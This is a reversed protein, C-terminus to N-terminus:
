QAKRVYLKLSDRSFPRHFVSDVADPLKPHCGPDVVLFGADQVAKDVDDIPSRPSAWPKGPDPVVLDTLNYWGAGYPGRCTLMAVKDNISEPPRTDPLRAVMFKDVSQADVGHNFAFNAFALDSAISNWGSM